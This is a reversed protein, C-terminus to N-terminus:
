LRYSMGFSVTREGLVSINVLFSAGSETTVNVGGGLEFKDVVSGKVYKDNLRWLVPGGFGRAMVYPSAFGLTRGVVVGARLWDVGTLLVTAGDTSAVTESRSAAVGFSGTVFWDGFQWQRAISAGGMIGLEIDHTDEQGVLKGDLVVGLSARMSWGSGGIYGISTSLAYQLMDFERDGAFSLTTRMSGAAASFFWSRKQHGTGEGGTPGVPEGIGGAEALRPAVLLVLLTASATARM